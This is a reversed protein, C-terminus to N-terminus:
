RTDPKGNPETIPPHSTVYERSKANPTAAIAEIVAATPANNSIGDAPSLLWLSPPVVQRDM